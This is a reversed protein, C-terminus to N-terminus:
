RMKPRLNHVHRHVHPEAESPSLPTEEEGDEEEDDNPSAPIDAEPLEEAVAGINRLDRELGDLALSMQPAKLQVKHQAALTEWQAQTVVGAAEVFPWPRGTSSLAYFLTRDLGKLWRFRRAPLHLDNDHLAQIATRAYSYRKIWDKAAQTATVKSFAAQALSLNPYGVKNRYRRDSHLTSRNLKDLLAEADPRKDLFHQLGFIAFMAREAESFQSFLTEPPSNKQRRLPAGLQRIFQAEAKSRHLQANVVLRHEIAFEEPSQASRHEEPDVNMLLTKKDGYSLSPLISPSFKGMIHPLTHITINRRTRSAQHRRVAIIGVVVMPVMMVLLIGATHHMVTLYEAWYVNEANNHTAALLNIRWAAHHHFRPFDALQWLHYLLWSTYEVVTERFFIATVLVVIFLGVAAMTWDNSSQVERHSPSM